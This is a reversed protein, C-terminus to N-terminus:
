RRAGGWERDGGGSAAHWISMLHFLFRITKSIFKAKVWAVRRKATSGLTLNQNKSNEPGLNVFVGVGACVGEPYLQRNYPLCWWWWWRCHSFRHATIPHHWVRWVALWCGADPAYSSLCKIMKWLWFTFLTRCVTKDGNILRLAWGLKSM